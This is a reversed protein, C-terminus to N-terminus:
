GIYAVITGRQEKNKNRCGLCEPYYIGNDEIVVFTKNDAEAEIKALNIAKM